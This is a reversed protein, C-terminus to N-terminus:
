KVHRLDELRSELSSTYKEREQIEHQWSILAAERLTCQKLLYDLATDEGEHKRLTYYTSRIRERLTVLNDASVPKYRENM